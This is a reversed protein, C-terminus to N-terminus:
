GAAAGAFHRLAWLVLGDRAAPDYPADHLHIGEVIAVIAAAAMRADSEGLGAKTFADHLRESMVAHFAEHVEAVATSHKAREHVALSLNAISDLEGLVNRARDVLSTEPGEDIRALARQQRRSLM